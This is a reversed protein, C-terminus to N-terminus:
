FTETGDYMVVVKLTDEGHVWPSLTSLTKHRRKGASSARLSNQPTNTQQQAWCLDHIAKQELGVNSWKDGQRVPVTWALAVPIQATM